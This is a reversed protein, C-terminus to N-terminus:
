EESKPQQGSLDPNRLTQALLITSMVSEYVSATKELQETTTAGWREPPTYGYVDDQGQTFRLFGKLRDAFSWVEDRAPHDELRYFKELQQRLVGLDGEEYVFEGQCNTLCDSDRQFSCNPCVLTPDMEQPFVHRAVLDTVTAHCWRYCIAVLDDIPLDDAKGIAIGADSALFGISESLPSYPIGAMESLAMSQGEMADRLRQGAERAAELTERDPMPIFPIAPNSGTKRPDEPPPDTTM